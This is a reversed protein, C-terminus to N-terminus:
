SGDVVRNTLTGIGEVSVSVNDGAVLPGVGAPTGTLLVDGPLMTMVSTVYTVLTAIDHILLSTRSDQKVEDNVTTTLHLDAPDLSTEIWPGLPCFTDFGKARTWQGDKAQLDRATVDNACTYGFIVEPVRAAPVDRCLRGFVIALEGEFDVRESLGVPRVIADGPGVVATSPKLFILPEAPVENGLERAHEAYNRGIAVIKTPLVPALLRVDEVPYRAGTLKPGEPGPGFPHGAIEAVRLGAGNAGSQSPQAEGTGNISGAADDVVVGYGVEDGVAFRAIRM